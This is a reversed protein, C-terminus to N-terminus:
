RNNIEQLCHAATIFYIQSVLTTGWEHIWKDNSWYGLSGMWPWYGVGSSTVIRSNIENDGKVGCKESDSIMGNEVLYKDTFSHWYLIKNGLWCFFCYFLKKSKFGYNAVLILLFKKTIKIKQYLSLEIWVFFAIPKRKGTQCNVYTISLLILFIKLKMKVRLQDLPIALFFIVLGSLNFFDM